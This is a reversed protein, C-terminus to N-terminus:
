QEVFALLLCQVVKPLIQGELKMKMLSNLAKEVHGKEGYGLILANWSIVDRAFIDNIPKTSKWSVM